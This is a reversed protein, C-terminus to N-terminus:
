KITIIGAEFTATIDQGTAFGDLQKASIDIIPKAKGSVRKEGDSDLMMVIVGNSVERTYTSGKTFGAATLRDGELWVRVGRSTPRVKLHQTTATTTEFPM